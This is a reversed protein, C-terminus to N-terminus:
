RAETLMERIKLSNKSWPRKSILLPGMVESISKTITVLYAQLYSDSRM